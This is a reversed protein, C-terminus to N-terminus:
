FWRGRWPIVRGAPERVTDSQEATVLILFKDLTVPVSTEVSRDGGLTGLRTYPYMMPPVAWAVYVRADFARPAPLNEVTIRPWYRVHGERTVDITFPLPRRGLLVRGSATVGPAPILEICYLDRSPSLAPEPGACAQADVNTAFMCLVLAAIRLRRSSPPFRMTCVHYRRPTVAMFVRSSEVVSVVSKESSTEPALLGPPAKMRLVPSVPRARDSSLNDASWADRPDCPPAVIAACALCRAYPSDSMFRHALSPPLGNASAVHSAAHFVDVTWSRSHASIRRASPVSVFSHSACRACGRSTIGASSWPITPLM